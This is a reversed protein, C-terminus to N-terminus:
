EGALPRIRSAVVDELTILRTTLAEVKAALRGIRSRAARVAGQRPNRRQKVSRKTKKAMTQRGKANVGRKPVQTFPALNFRQMDEWDRASERGYTEAWLRETPYGTWDTRKLARAIAAVMDAGTAQGARFKDYTKIIIADPRRRKM